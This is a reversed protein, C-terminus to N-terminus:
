LNEKFVQVMAYVISGVPIDSFSIYAWKKSFDVKQTNAVGNVFLSVSISYASSETDGDGTTTENRLVSRNINFSISGAEKDTFVGSSCATLIISIVLFLLLFQISFRKM